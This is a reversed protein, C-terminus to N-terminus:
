VTWLEGALREVGPGITRSDLQVEDTGALRDLVGEDLAEVPLKAVLAQVLIPENVKGICSPLDLSPPDVVVAMSRMTRQAILCWLLKGQTQVRVLRMSRLPGPRHIRGSRHFVGGRM